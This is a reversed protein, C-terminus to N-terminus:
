GRSGNGALRKWVAIGYIAAASAAFLFWQVAYSLHNNPVDRPDPAAHAALEALPPNAILRVEGNAAPGITGTVPGGNWVATGPQPSWGLVVQAEGGEALSCRATQAWGAEGRASRGAIATRDLVRACVLASKRYLDAERVAPTLPFPVPQAQQSAAGYREVLANKWHMRRLQWMGLAIMTAIALAVILTAVVPFRKM